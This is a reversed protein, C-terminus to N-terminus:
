PRTLSLEREFAARETLSLGGSLVATALAEANTASEVYVMVDKYVLACRERPRGPIPFRLAVTNSVARSGRLMWALGCNDM